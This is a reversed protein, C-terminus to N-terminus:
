EKNWWSGEGWFPRIVLREVRGSKKSEASYLASRCGDVEERDRKAHIRVWGVETQEKREREVKVRLKGHSGECIEEM